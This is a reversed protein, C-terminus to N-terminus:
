VYVTSHCFIIESLCLFSSSAKSLAHLQKTPIFAELRCRVCSQLLVPLETCMKNRPLGQLVYDHMGYASMDLKHRKERHLQKGARSSRLPQM